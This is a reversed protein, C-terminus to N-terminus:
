KIVVNCFSIVGLENNNHDPYVGPTGPMGEWMGDSLNVQNLYRVLSEITPFMPVEDYVDLINPDISFTVKGKKFIINTPKKSYGNYLFLDIVFRKYRNNKNMYANLQRVTPEPFDNNATKQFMFQMTVKWKHKIKKPTKGFYYYM